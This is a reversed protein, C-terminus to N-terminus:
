GNSTEQNPTLARVRGELAICAREEDTYPEQVYGSDRRDEPSLQWYLHSDLAEALLELDEDALPTGREIASLAGQLHEIEEDNSDGAALREAEDVFDDPIEIIVRV